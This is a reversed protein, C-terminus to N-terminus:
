YSMVYTGVTRTKSIIESFRQGSQTFFISLPDIVWLLILPFIPICWLNRLLTQWWKISKLDSVIRIGLIKKGITDNFKYEQFTFYILLLFGLVFLLATLTGVVDSSQLLSYTDMFNKGKPILNLFTKRFFTVVVLDFILLDIVFALFRKWVLAPGTITKAKPINLGKKM